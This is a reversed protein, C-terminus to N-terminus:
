EKNGVTPKAVIRMVPVVQLMEGYKKTEIDLQVEVGMEVCLKDVAEAFAKKRIEADSM